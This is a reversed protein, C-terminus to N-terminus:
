KKMRIQNRKLQLKKRLQLLQYHGTKQSFRKEEIKGGPNETHGQEVEQGVATLVAVTLDQDVEQTLDNEGEILDVEPGVQLIHVLDVTTQIAQHGAEEDTTLDRVLDVALDQTPDLVQADEEIDHIDLTTM